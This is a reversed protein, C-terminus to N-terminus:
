INERLHDDRGGGFDLYKMDPDSIAFKILHFWMYKALYRKENDPTKEWMPPHCEVYGGDHIQVFQVGKVYESSNDFTIFTRLEGKLALDQVYDIGFAWQRKEGRIPQQEWMEMFRKVLDKDFMIEQYALDTNHKRAYNWNKKGTESLSKVYENFTTGFVPLIIM